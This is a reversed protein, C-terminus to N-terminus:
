LVIVVRSLLGQPCNGGNLFFDSKIFVLKNDPYVKGQVLPSLKRIPTITRYPTIKLPQPYNDSKLPPPTITRPPCNGCPTITRPYSDPHLQGRPNTTRPGRPSTEKPPPTNGQPQESTFTRNRDIVHIRMTLEQCLGRLQTLSQSTCSSHVM